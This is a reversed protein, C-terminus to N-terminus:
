KKTRVCKHNENPEYGAKCKPHLKDGHALAPKVGGNAIWAFALALSVSVLFRIITTM